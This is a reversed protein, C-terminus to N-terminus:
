HLMERLNNREAVHHLFVPSYKVSSHMVRIDVDECVVACNM